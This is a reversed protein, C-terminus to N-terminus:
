VAETGPISPQVLQLKRGEADDELLVQQFSRGLDLLEEDVRPLHFVFSQYQPAGLPSILKAAASQALLAHQLHFGPRICLGSYRRVSFFHLILILFGVVFSAVRLPRGMLSIFNSFSPKTRKNNTRAFPRLRELDSSAKSRFITPLEPLLPVLEYAPEGTETVDVSAAVVYGSMSAKCAPAM